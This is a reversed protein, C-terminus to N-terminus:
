CVIGCSARSISVGQGLPLHFLDFRMEGPKAVSPVACLDVTPGARYRSKRIEGDVRGRLVGDSADIAQNGRPRGIVCEGRVSELADLGAVLLQNGTQVLDLRLRVSVDLLYV